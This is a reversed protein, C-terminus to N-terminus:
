MWMADWLSYDGVRYVLEARLPNAVIYRAIRKIDEDKRIAHDHYGKQWLAGQTGLYKNIAIASRSKIQRMIVGLEGDVPSMLWHFHDPMIVFCYTEAMGSCMVQKIESVLLRGVYLNSFVPKRESTVTTILYPRGTESYRGKRLNRGQYKAM